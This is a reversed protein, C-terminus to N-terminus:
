KLLQRLREITVASVAASVNLSNTKGQMPITGLFDCSDKILRRIGKGESGFVIGVKNKYDIEYWNKSDISNEIGTIWFDNKKLESITSNLNSVIHININFSSGQSVQLVSDTIHVSKHRPLIIGNIGACECTRIIQGLNQPDNIEDLIVFCVNDDLNDLYLESYNFIFNVAIGQTHKKPFNHLFTHKDCYQVDYDILKKRIENDLLHKNEELVFITIIQHKINSYLLSKVNNQGYVTNINNKNKKM